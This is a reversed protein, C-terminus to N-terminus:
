KKLRRLKRAEREALFKQHTLEEFMDPQDDDTVPQPSEEIKKAPTVKMFPTEEHLMWRAFSQNTLALKRKTRHAIWRKMCAKLDHRPFFPRLREILDIDNVAAAAADVADNKLANRPPDAGSKHILRIVEPAPTKSQLRDRHLQNAESLEFCRGFPTEYVTVISAAELEKFAREVDVYRINRRSPYTLDRLLKAEVPARGHEQQTLIEEIRRLLDCAQFSLTQLRPDTRFSFSM